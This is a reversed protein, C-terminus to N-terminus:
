RVFRIQELAELSIALGEGLGEEGGALPDVSALRGFSIGSRAEISRISVQTAVKLQPSVFQGFVFEEEPQLNSEQNMEYGTACLKGTEDHIFAIIKWFALPIRVGYMEPDRRDFYPGTFVSIKMEDERAHQLAYDELALWIPANFAQMQPTTNTVHMSDENGKKATSATRGWGPDERRTMHGRSFKPPSGYCENMIQQAKPIRPDWKWGVRASKKSLNGDINVASFFCMRRSRSMVVSYHLYKLETLTDGEFAFELVDDAARTVSPLGVKSSGDGLFDPQYGERDRYDEAVAEDGGVAGDGGDAPVAPMARVNRPAPAAADGLSVTVTLPITISTSGGASRAIRPAPVRGAAPAAALPAPRPAEVRGTRGSRVKDLLRKVVDAPVAYNTALFSGSFHLGLAKGSDLDVVASGSNGGLTTCNHLLLTPRVETIGGPALRKKNYTKGFIEEMLSPEPIRSDYAPYGITAVNQTAAIETALAIPDALRANGSTVEIEFFSVDPGPEDEIYLPRVLKFVLRAPNRIEQLFDADAGIPGDLGVQFTYGDGRRAAFERAVHRNTVMINPAVLWGTGVWDLRAGQLNIRGVARIAKDLFPKAKTLRDTWIASDAQDEFKLVTENERIELVPRTTRLIISEQVVDSAGPEAPGASEPVPTSRAVDVGEQALEPDLGRIFANYTRLRELRSSSM